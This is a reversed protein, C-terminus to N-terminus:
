PKKRLSFLMGIGVGALGFVIIWVWAPVGGSSSQAAQVAAPTAPAAPTASAVAVPTGTAPTACASAAAAPVQPAVVTFPIEGVVPHGDDSVVRWAITYAGPPISDAVQQIVKAGDVEPRGSEYRRGDAGRVLVAPFRVSETFELTVKRVAEVQANKAPDSSKLATHALAPAALATGLLLSVAFAVVAAFSSKKM